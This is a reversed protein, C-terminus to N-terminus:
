ATKFDPHMKIRSYVTYYGDKKVVVCAYDLTRRFKAAKQAKAKTEYKMLTNHYVYGNRIIKDGAM